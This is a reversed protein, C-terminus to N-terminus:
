VTESPGQLSPRDPLFDHAFTFTRPEGFVAWEAAMQGVAPSVTLGVGGLAGAVVIRADSGHPGIQFKGDPSVPYLGSWSSHIRLNEWSPCRDIVAEAVLQLTKESVAPDLKDPDDISADLAEHSHLGFLLQSSGEPRFYLSSKGSGPVYTNVVPLRLPSPLQAVTVEHRQNELPVSVGLMSGLQSAWAGAANVVVDCSLIGESTDLRIYSPAISAGLLQTRSRIEVGESRALNLYASCLEHGDMYGDSPCYMGGRFDDCRMGPVLQALEDANVVRADAVGFRRERQVADSFADLDQNSSAVRVYGVRQLALGAVAFDALRAVSFCRLEQEQAVQTQRNFIGASLGSSGSGPYQRELVTVSRAGIRAATLATSLGAVGAGVITVRPGRRNM